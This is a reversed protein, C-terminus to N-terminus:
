YVHVHTDVLLYIISEGHGDMNHLVSCLFPIFASVHIYTYVVVEFLKSCYM